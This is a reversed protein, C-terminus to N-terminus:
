AGDANALSAKTTAKDIQAPSVTDNDNKASNKIVGGVLSVNPSNENYTGAGVIFGGTHPTGTADASGVIALSDSLKIGDTNATLKVSSGKTTKEFTIKGTSSLDLTFLTTGGITLAQAASAALVHLEATTGTPTLTASTGGTISAAANDPAFTVTDGGAAWSSDTGKLVFTTGVTLKGTGTFAISGGNELTLKATTADSYTLTIAGDAAVSTLNSDTGSELKGNEITASGNTGSFIVKGALADIATSALIDASPVTVGTTNTVILGNTLVPAMALTVAGEGAITLAAGTTLEKTVTTTGNFTFTAEGSNTLTGSFSAPGAFTAGNPL